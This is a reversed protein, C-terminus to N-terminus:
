PHVFWEPPVPRRPMHPASIELRLDAGGPGQFYTLDFRHLGARLAVQGQKETAAHQGDHDVVLEGDLRLRAGDDSVLHFTYLADDPVRIMGTLHLGYQEPREDGRLRVDPVTGSRTPAGSAAEDAAHLTDERYSYALGPQLSEGRMAAAPKWEARAVRARAVPSARGSPLFTRASVTVPTSTVRVALPGTYRPSAPTPDSGDLTYRVVGGPVPSALTLRTREELVKRDAALGSPEPVRYGVGLADLRALHAPLRALFRERDRAGKPSWLVEAMAMMRPFLMYEAYAPTSIYETWLNAQAGLIHASEDPTLGAPIPDWAYVTDLPLYCCIALPEVAPDGQYHDLYTYEGPAMVVDHGQRAAAIGGEVGRWSMVTAQPAIGGELIEDWGILKRGHARLFAEIRRTFWSQLEEENKLGERKMIAQAEASAKWRTKPAEDGGIHIYESPFLEMVETLVDQFFAITREGPCVIEEHVGWTTSVEFPGPTCALEPYSAIAAGTHGPMEIEPVITVGRAAAYAVLDRVEAQTYFGGHPTRDGVYPDFHQGLMTEKRWAGVTTLRPYKRIELRWGQDDTLHLQLRDLKYLAALDVLEKLFEPPYYYRGVDLLVGRYRFRPADAIEVAPIAWRAPGAAPLLQRLTQVGHVLGEAMPATLTARRPTVVLRYREPEAAPGSPDLRIVIANSVTDGAAQSVPLPLGSAARLPLALLDAATRLAAGTDALVVRTAGDLVMEGAAPVLLRPQPIVPYRAAEALSPAPAPAPRTCGTAIGAGLAAFALAFPLSAALSVARRRPSPAPTM